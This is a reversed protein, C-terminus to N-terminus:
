ELITTYSLFLCFLCGLPLGCWRCDPAAQLCRLTSQAKGGSLCVCARSHVALQGLSRVDLIAYKCMQIYGPLPSSVASLSSRQREKAIGIPELLTNLSPCHARERSAAKVVCIPSANSSSYPGSLSGNSVYVIWLAQESLVRPRPDLTGNANEV